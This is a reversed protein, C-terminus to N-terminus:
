VVDSERPPDERDLWSYAAARQRPTIDLHQAIFLGLFRRIGLSLTPLPNSPSSPPSSPTSLPSHFTSLPSHFTSLPSHFTSLSPTSLESNPSTSPFFYRLNSIQSRLNTEAAGDGFRRRAEEQATRLAEVLATSLGVSDPREHHVSLSKMCGLRGASLMFRCASRKGEPITCDPCPKFSPAVGLLDLMMFEFDVLVEGAPREAAELESLTADLLAYADPSPLMPQATQAVLWCAYDAAAFARWAGRLGQRTDLPFVERAVHTGGHDRRYFLLECRYGVDTQGLFFSKPRCAGKISTTVLGFDPTLWTVMRSTHSFPRSRLVIGETKEIM